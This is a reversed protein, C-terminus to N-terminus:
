KLFSPLNIQETKIDAKMAQSPSLGDDYFVKWDEESLITDPRIHRNLLMIQHLREIWIDFSLKHEM